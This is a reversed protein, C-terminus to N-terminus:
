TVNRERRADRRIRAQALQAPETYLRTLLAFTFDLLDEADAKTLNGRHAADNGDEKICDSLEELAKPLGGTQILWPLRLGLDRRTRFNLGPVVQNKPPLLTETAMDICLRFMTGAANYAQVAICASAERFIKEIEPPLNLPPPTWANDKLSVYGQYIFLDNIVQLEAWSRKEIYTSTQYDQDQLVFVTSKKCKRCVCFVEYTKQWGTLGVTGAALLEFTIQQARCRPCDQIYETM